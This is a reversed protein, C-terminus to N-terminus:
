PSFPYNKTGPCKILAPSHILPSIDEWSELQNRFIIGGPRKNPGPHYNIELFQGWLITIQGLVDILCVLTGVNCICCLVQTQVMVRNKKSFKANTHVPNHFEISNRHFLLLICCAVM